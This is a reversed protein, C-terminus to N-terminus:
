NAGINKPGFSIASAIDNISGVLMYKVADKTDFVEGISLGYDGSPYLSRKTILVYRNPYYELAIIANVIKTLSAIPLIKNERLSFIKKSRYEKVLFSEAQLNLNLFTKKIEEKRKEGEERKLKLSLLQKEKIEKQKQAVVEYYKKSIFFGFIFSIFVLLLIAAIKKLNLKLGFNNMMKKKKLKKQIKM